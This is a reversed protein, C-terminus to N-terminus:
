KGSLSTGYRSEFAAKNRVVLVFDSPALSTVSSGNFDFTIGDIFSVYTLDIIEDGINKLEIFEFEDNDTSDNAPPDAPNYMMETIRLNNLIYASLPEGTVFQSPTSWHSWRGTNDKM